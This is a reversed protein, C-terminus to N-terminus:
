GDIQLGNCLQVANGHRVDQRRFRRSLYSRPFDLSLTIKFMHHLALSPHFSLNFFAVLSLFLPLATILHMSISTVYCSAATGRQAQSISKIIWGWLMTVNLALTSHHFLLSSTFTHLASIVCVCRCAPFSPIQRLSHTHTHTHTHASTGRPTSELLTTDPAPSVMGPVTRTEPWVATLVNLAMSTVSICDWRPWAWKQDWMCSNSHLWVYLM